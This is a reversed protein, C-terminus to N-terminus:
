GQHKRILGGDGNFLQYDLQGGGFWGSGVLLQIASITGGGTLKIDTYSNSGGDPYWSNGGPATPQSNTSILGPTGVYQM